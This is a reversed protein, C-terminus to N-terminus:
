GKVAKRYGFIVGETVLLM